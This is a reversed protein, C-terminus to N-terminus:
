PVAGSYDQHAFVERGFLDRSVARFESIPQGWVQWRWIANDAHSLQVIADRILTGTLDLRYCLDMRPVSPIGPFPTQTNWADSRRTPYNWPRYAGSVHKLRIILQSDLLFYKRHGNPVLVVGPDVLLAQRTLEYWAENIIIGRASKGVTARYPGLHNWVGVAKYLAGTFDPMRPQLIAKAPSMDMHLQVLHMEEQPINQTKNCAFQSRNQAHTDIPLNRLFHM